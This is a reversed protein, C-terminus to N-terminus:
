TLPRARARVHKSANLDHKRTNVNFMRRTDGVDIVGITDRIILAPVGITRRKSADEPIIKTVHMEM